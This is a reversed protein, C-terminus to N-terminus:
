PCGVRFIVTTFRVFQGASFSAIAGYKVWAWSCARAQQLLLAAEPLLTQWLSVGYVFGSGSNWEGRVLTEHLRAVRNDGKRVEAPVENILAGLVQKGTEGGSPRDKEDLLGLEIGIARDAPLPATGLGVHRHEAGASRDSRGAEM